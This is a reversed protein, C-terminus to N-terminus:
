ATEAFARDVASFFGTRSDPQAMERVSWVDRDLFFGTLRSADALDSPSCTRDQAATLFGPLRLLKDAWPAGTQRNVAQGSRPSVYALDDTVGSGACQALNLGFGLEELLRLEFRVMLPGALQPDSMHEILIGAAEYLARHPEREPLLRLHAGLLQLGALACRSQMLRAAALELPEVAYTGLHADLRARWVADVRNGPQLVPQMRRSRGGRVLGLHRGHGATMLEVIVSTEGHRRTGIIIGQDSWQM